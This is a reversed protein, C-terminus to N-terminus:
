VDPQSVDEGEPATAVEEIPPESPTIEGLEIPAEVVSGEAGPPIPTVEGPIVPSEPETPKAAKAEKLAKEYEPGQKMKQAELAEDIQEAAEQEQIRILPSRLASNKGSLTRSM